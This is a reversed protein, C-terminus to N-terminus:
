KFTSLIRKTTMLKFNTEIAAMKKLIRADPQYKKYNDTVWCNGVSWRVVEELLEKGLGMGTGLDFCEEYVIHNIYTMYGTLTDFLEQQSPSPQFAPAKYSEPLKPKMRGYQDTVMEGSRIYNPYAGYKSPAVFDPIKLSIDNDDETIRCVIIHGDRSDWRRMTENYHDRVIRGLSLAVQLEDALDCTLNMDKHGIELTCSNDYSGDFLFPMFQEISVSFAETNLTNEWMWHLPIGAERAIALCEGCVVTQSYFLLNTILKVTQAEGINAVHFSIKSITNLVEKVSDYAKTDGGVYISTNGFDAGMHSLNSVPSELSLVGKKNAEEAIRLTNHYDTTSTDIWIAAPHMGELAGDVGMMNELVHEPLPLCTFVIDSGTASEKPTDAWIAGAVMLPEAAKKYKDCVKVPYGSKMLERVMPKGMAGTGIFTIQIKENKQTM